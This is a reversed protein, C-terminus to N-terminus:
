LLFVQLRPLTPGRPLHYRSTRLQGPEYLNRVIRVPLRRFCRFLGAVVAVAALLVAFYGVTWGAARDAAPGDMHGTHEHSAHAVPVPGHMLEHVSGLAGHCFLLALVVALKAARGADNRIRTKM